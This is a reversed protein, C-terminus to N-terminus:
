SPYLISYKASFQFKTQADNDGTIFYNDHYLGIPSEYEKATLTVAVFLMAFTFITKLKM